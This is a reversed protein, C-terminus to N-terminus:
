TRTPLHHPLHYPSGLARSLASLDSSHPSQGYIYEMPLHSPSANQVCTHARRSRVGRRAAFALVSSARRCNGPLACVWLARNTNGASGSGRLPCDACVWLTLSVGCPILTHRMGHRITLLPPMLRSIKSLM